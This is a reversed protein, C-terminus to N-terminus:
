SNNHWLHGALWRCSSRVVPVVQTSLPSLSPLAELYSCCPLSGLYACQARKGYNTLLQAPPSTCM